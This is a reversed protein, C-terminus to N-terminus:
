GPQSHHDYFAALAISVAHGISLSEQLRGMPISAIADCAAVEGTLFGADERGLVLAVKRGPPLESLRGASTAALLQAM